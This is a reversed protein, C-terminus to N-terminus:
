CAAEYQGYRTCPLQTNSSGLLMKGGTADEWSRQLAHISCIRSVQLTCDWLKKPLFLNFLGEKRLATILPPTKWNGYQKLQAKFIPEAPICENDVWEHVRQNDIAKPSLKAIRALAPHDFVNSAM